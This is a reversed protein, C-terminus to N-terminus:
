RMQLIAVTTSRCNSHLPPYNYGEVAESLKWITGNMGRCIKSTRNDLLWMDTISLEMM